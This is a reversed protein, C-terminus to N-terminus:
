RVTDIYAVVFQFEGETITHGGEVWYNTASGFDYYWINQFSFKGKVVGGVRPEIATIEINGLSSLDYDNPRFIFAKGGAQSSVYTTDYEFSTWEFADMQATAEYNRTTLPSTSSQSMEIHPSNADCKTVNGSLKYSESGSRLDVKLRSNHQGLCGEIRVPQGNLKFQVYDKEGTGGQQEQQCGSAGLLLATLVIFINKM